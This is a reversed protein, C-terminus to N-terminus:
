RTDNFVCALTVHISKILLSKAEAQIELKKTGTKHEMEKRGFEEGEGEGVYVYCYKLLHLERQAWLNYQLSLYM